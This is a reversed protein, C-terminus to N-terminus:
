KPKRAAQEGAQAAYICSNLKAGFAHQELWPEAALREEFVAGALELLQRQQGPRL